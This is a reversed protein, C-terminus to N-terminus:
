LWAVPEAACVARKLGLLRPGRRTLRECSGDHSSMPSCDMLRGDHWGGGDVDRSLDVTAAADARFVNRSEWLHSEADAVAASLAAESELPGEVVRMSPVEDTLGSVPDIELRM